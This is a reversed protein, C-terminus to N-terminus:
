ACIVLMICEAMREVRPRKAETALAERCITGPAVQVATRQEWAWRMCCVLEFMLGVCALVDLSMATANDLVAVLPVPVCTEGDRVLRGCVSMGQLTPSSLVLPVEKM